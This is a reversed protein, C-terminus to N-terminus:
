SGAKAPANIAREGIAKIAAIDRNTAAVVIEGFTDPRFCALCGLTKIKFIDGGIKEYVGDTATTAQFLAMTAAIEFARWPDSEKLQAQSTLLYRHKECMPPLEVANHRKAVDSLDTM